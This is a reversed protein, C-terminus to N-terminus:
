NNNNKKQATSVIKSTIITKYKEENGHHKWKIPYFPNSLNFDISFRTKNSTNAKTGHMCSSYFIILEGFKCKIPKMKKYDFTKHRFSKYLYGLQNQLSGKKFRTNIKKSKFYDLNKLHSRPLIHLANQINTDFLPIWCNIEYPTHGLDTDRHFNLNDFDIMPRVIRLNVHNTVCIDNGLISKFFEDNTKIIEFHLNNKLIFKQIKRQFIYHKKDYIKKHYHNIIDKQKIVEKFSNTLFKKITKLIKKNKIKTVVFGQNHFKNLVNKKIM